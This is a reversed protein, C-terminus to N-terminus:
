RLSAQATPYAPGPDTSHGIMLFWGTSGFRQIQVTDRFSSADDIFEATVINPTVDNPHYVTRISGGRVREFARVKEKAEAQAAFNKPVLRLIGPVDDKLASDRYRSAVDAASALGQQECAVVLLSVMVVAFLKPGM